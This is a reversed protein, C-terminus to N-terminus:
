GALRRARGMAARIRAVIPAPEDLQSWSVRVIVFGVDNLADFRQKEDWHAQEVDSTMSYKARGDFEIAVKYGRPKMDVRAIFRGHEDRVVFQPDVEIGAQVAILRTRTEGPSEARGDALALTRRVREIGTVQSLARLRSRLDEVDTLGHHLAHDAIAVARDLPLVRACDMVTRPVATVRIDDVSVLDAPGFPGEHSHVRHRVGRRIEDIGTVHARSVRVQWVPLGHIMAASVHSAAVPHDHNLVVARAFLAHRVDDDAPPTLAYAGRRIRHLGRVVWKAENESLGGRILDRTLVLGGPRAALLAIENNPRVVPDPHTM